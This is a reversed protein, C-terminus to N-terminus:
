GQEEDATSLPRYSGTPSGDDSRPTRSSGPPQGDGDAGVGIAIESDRPRERSWESAASASTTNEPTVAPAPVLQEPSLAPAPVPWHAPTRRARHDRRPRRRPQSLLGDILEAFRAVAASTDSVPLAGRLRSPDRVAEALVANFEARTQALRIRGLEAVKRSFIVQHDDVHEGLDPRRPVVIPLIERTWAAAISAPGGHCVIVSARDLLQGLQPVDVSPAASCAPAVTTTGSQIFFNPIQEPRANLWGNVWHVMRDFPHHDTGVTVVVRVEGPVWNSNGGTM